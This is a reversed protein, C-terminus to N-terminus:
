LNGIQLSKSGVGQPGLHGDVGNKPGKMQVDNKKSNM